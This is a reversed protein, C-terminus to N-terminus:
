ELPSYITRMLSGDETQNVLVVMNVDVVTGGTAGDHLSAVLLGCNTLAGPQIGAVDIADVAFFTDHRGQVQAEPPTRGLPVVHRHFTSDVVYKFEWWAERVCGDVVYDLELEFGACLPCAGEPTVDVRELRFAPPPQAADDAKKGGGGGGGGRHKAEAAAPAGDHGKAEAVDAQAFTLKADNGGKAAAM